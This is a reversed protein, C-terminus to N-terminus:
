MAFRREIQLGTGRQVWWQVADLANGLLVAGDVAVWHRRVGVMVCRRGIQLQMQLM